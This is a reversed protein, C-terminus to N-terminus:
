KLWRAARAFTGLASLIRLRAPAPLGGIFPSSNDDFRRRRYVASLLGDRWGSMRDSSRSSASIRKRVVILDERREIRSACLWHAKQSRRSRRIGECVGAPSARWHYIGLWAVLVATRIAFAQTVASCFLRCDLGHMTADWRRTMAIFIALFCIVFSLFRLLLFVQVDTWGTLNNAAFVFVAPFLIRNYFPHIIAPKGDAVFTIM